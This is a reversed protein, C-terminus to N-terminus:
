SVAWYSYDRSAIAKNENRNKKKLKCKMSITRRVHGARVVVNQGRTPVINKDNALWSSQVGTCNVVVDVLPDEMADQLEQLIARRM